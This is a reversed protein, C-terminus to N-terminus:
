HCVFFAHKFNTLENKRTRHDSPTCAFPQSIGCYKFVFHGNERDLSFGRKKIFDPYVDGNKFSQEMEDLLKIEYNSSPNALILEDIVHIARKCKDPPLKERYHKLASIILDNFEGPRGEKISPANLPALPDRPASLKEIAKDREALTRELEKIKKDRSALQAELTKDNSIVKVESCKASEAGLLLKDFTPRGIEASASAQETISSLIFREADFETSSTKPEILINYEGNPYYIGIYGNIPAWRESKKLLNHLKSKDSDCGETIVHAIGYLRKALRYEDIDYGYAYGNKLSSLYVIAVEPKKRRSIVDAVYDTLDGTCKHPVNEYPIDRTKLFGNKSLYGIFELSKDIDTAAQIDIYVTKAKIFFVAEIIMDDSTLRFALAGGYCIQDLKLKAKSAYDSVSKKLSEETFSHSVYTFRRM